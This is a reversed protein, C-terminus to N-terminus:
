EPLFANSLGTEDLVSCQFPNTGAPVGGNMVPMSQNRRLGGAITPFSHNRRMSGPRLPQGVGTDGHGAVAVAVALGAPAVAEDALGGNLVVSSCPPMPAPMPAPVMRGDSRTKALGLRKLREVLGGGMCLETQSGSSSRARAGGAGAAGQLLLLSKAPKSALFSECQLGSPRAPPFAPPSPCPSLARPSNPPTCPVAMEASPEQGGSPPGARPRGARPVYVAASIGREKLLNALGLSSSLTKTSDRQNTSSQFLSPRPPGCPTGAQSESTSKAAGPGISCIPTPAYMGSPTLATLEDTPHLIRCTTFTYTSSTQSLCKGPYNVPLTFPRSAVMQDLAGAPGQPGAAGGVPGQRSAQPPGTAGGGGEEAGPGCDTRTARGALHAPSSSPLRSCFSLGEVGDDAPLDDEELDGLRYTAEEDADELPRDDKTLVGPRTDLIGGLHPQALQQWQLLTVSGEMPKVIQLKDPLFSRFSLCTGISMISDAPTLLGSPLVGYAGDVGDAGHERSRRREREEEFYRRECQVNERRLMLRHLAAQLDRCSPSGRDGLRQSGDPTDGNAWTAPSGTEGAPAQGSGPLPRSSGGVCRRKVLENAVKVTDFVRKHQSRHDSFGEDEHLERRMSGEIEAALSDMPYLLSGNYRRPTSMVTQSRLGKSEEQAEHLMDVCEAYREELERLEATLEHQAEKAASLHQVLEENELQYAKARRQLDVIQSLLHTIEEQQRASDENRRGLEDTLHGIQLHADRLGKVCDNVLQQEKEEYSITETKIHCAKSRLRLNEDELEKLRKHVADLQAPIHGGVLSGGSRELPTSGSSDSECDEVTHTYIHLLEDKMSLDHRLQNVQELTHELEDELHEVRESLSKNKELLTQGIRAALELDREKEELLHTVADIDSYTRTMQGVRESCQMMYRLTEEAQEPSLDPSAYAGDGDGDDPSLVPSHLWDRHEYGYVANARLTYHPLREELLSIIEVEPLEASSCVDTITSADRYISAGAENWPSPTDSSYYVEPGGPPYAFAPLPRASAQTAAPSSSGLPLSLPFGSAAGPYSGSPPVPLGPASDRPGQRAPYSPLLESVALSAPRGAAFPPATGATSTALNPFPATRTDTFVPGSCLSTVPGNATWTQTTTAYPPAAPGPKLPEGGCGLGARALTATATLTTSTTVTYTATAAPRGSPWGPSAALSPGNTAISPQYLHSAETPGAPLALKSSSASLVGRVGAFLCRRRSLLRSWARLGFM